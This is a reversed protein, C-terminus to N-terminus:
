STCSARCTGLLAEQNLNIAICVSEYSYLIDHVKILQKPMPNANGKGTRDMFKKLDTSLFEFVQMYCMYAYQQVHLSSHSGLSM